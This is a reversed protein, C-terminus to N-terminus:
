ICLIYAIKTRTLSTGTHKFNCQIAM